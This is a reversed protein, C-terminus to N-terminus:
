YKRLQQTLIQATGSAGLSGGELRARLHGVKTLDYWDDPDDPNGFPIEWSHHPLYGRVLADMFTSSACYITIKGGFPHNSVYIPEASVQGAGICTPYYDSPTVYYASGGSAVYGWISEEIPTWVAKMIRAYTELDLDFPIRKQNDEDLRLSQLVYWPERAEYYGRLILKRIPFDTPLEVYSYSGDAPNTADYLQKSTLFGVPSIVMEDFSNALIEMEAAVGAAYAGTLTYTIKLQLNKFRKPDLALLPDYLKRGFDIPYLNYEGNANIHQGHSLSACKRDYIALAQALYGNASYLVDSGDVLEIKTMDKAGHAAMYNATATTRFKIMISSIPDKDLIDITKTGASSLSEAALITNTRYKM